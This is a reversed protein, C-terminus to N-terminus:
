YAVTFRKRSHKHQELEDVLAVAFDEFSITSNGKDDVLLQDGGIRFQGTRQGFDIVAAPSLFTWDLDREERLRNLFVGGKLAEEKYAAPFDPTNVLPVGPAIELSGAGGMVAYRKVGAKRVAEILTEPDSATFHVASVVADHGKLLDAFGADYLDGQKATVNPLKAIKDPNRAIATVVHGRRSLEEVIRSGGRGSAGIVAIKM